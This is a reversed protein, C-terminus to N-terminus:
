ASRLLSSLASSMPDSITKRSSAKVMTAVRLTSQPRVDLRMASGGGTGACHSPAERTECSRRRKGLASVFDGRGPHQCHYPNRAVKAIAALENGALAEDATQALSAHAQGSALPVEVLMVSSLTSAAVVSSLKM